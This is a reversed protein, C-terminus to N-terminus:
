KKLNKIYHRDGIDNRFQLPGSVGEDIADLVKERAEWPSFGLASIALTRSTGVTKFMGKEVQESAVHYARCDNDEIADVDVQFKYPGGEKYAYQPSVLYIVTSAMNKFRLHREDLDGTAIKELVHALDVDDELLEVISIGEPDGIRSNFEVVKLGKDTKFFSGYLTGKFDRWDDELRELVKNMLKEAEKLDKDGLFPLNGQPGMTFCGMGGTGPGKDGDERYPYDYTLPPVILSRGDTYAQVTFEQGQMKEEIVVGEQNPDNIVELAYNKAEIYDRLHPGMVKVGKGGTLGIPKVVVETETEQFIEIAEDLADKNNAPIYLPNYKEGVADILERAYVKDWEIRSAEKDPSPMLVEPNQTTVVDVVGAALASDSNTYFMDVGADKVCDAVAQGDCADEIQYFKGGSREAAEVLSPNLYEGVPYVEHGHELFKEAAAADRGM